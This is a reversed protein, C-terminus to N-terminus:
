RCFRACESLAEAVARRRGDVRGSALIAPCQPLRARPAADYHHRPGDTSTFATLGEPSGNPNSPYRKAPRGYNDVYRLCLQNQMRARELAPEDGFQVRGEGHAVAIPLRSGEMGRLLVSRSELVEVTALRAEFQESRNRGFRPWNAAGPILEVLHSLMQCGNCVGM